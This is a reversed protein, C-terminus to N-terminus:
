DMCLWWHQAGHAWPHKGLSAQLGKISHNGLKPQLAKCLTTPVGLAGATNLKRQDRGQELAPM